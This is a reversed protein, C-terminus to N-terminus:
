GLPCALVGPTGLGGASAPCNFGAPAEPCAETGSLIKSYLAGNPEKTCRDTRSEKDTVARAGGCVLSDAHQTYCLRDRYCQFRTASNEQAASGAARWSFCAQATDYRRQGVETGATCRSDAYFAIVVQAGCSGKATSIPTSSTAPVPAAPAAPQEVSSQSSCALTAVLILALSGKPRM